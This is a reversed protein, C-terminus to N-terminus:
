YDALMQKMVGIEATQVAEVDNAFMSVEIDQAARPTAMLDAVMKLAGEHHRVM